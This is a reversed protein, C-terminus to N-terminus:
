AIGALAEQLIIGVVLFIAGLGNEIIGNAPVAAQIGVPTVEVARDEAPIQSVQKRLRKESPGM